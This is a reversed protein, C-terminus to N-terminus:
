FIVWCDRRVDRGLSCDMGTVKRTIYSSMYILFLLLGAPKFGLILYGMEEAGCWVM